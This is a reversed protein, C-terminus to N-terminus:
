TCYAGAYLVGRYLLNWIYIYIHIYLHSGGQIPSGRYLSGGIRFVRDVPDEGILPTKINIQTYLQMLYVHILTQIYTIYRMHIPTRMYTYMCMYLPSMHIFGGAHRHVHIMYTHIYTYVCMYHNYYMQTHM